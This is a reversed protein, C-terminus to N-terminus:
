AISSDRAEEFVGIICPIVKEWSFEEEIKQRANKGLKARLDQNGLIVATKEAISQPNRPPVLFGTVGEKVAEPIGAIETAVVPVGCAM